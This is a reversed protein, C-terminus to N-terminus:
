GSRGHPGTERETPGHGDHYANSKGTGRPLFQALFPILNGLKLKEWLIKSVRQFTHPYIQIKKYVGAM